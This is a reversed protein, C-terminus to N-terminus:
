TVTGDGLPGVGKLKLSLEVLGDESGAISREEVRYNGTRKENGTTDGEIYFVGEGEDGIAIGGHEADDADYFANVEATWAKRGAVSNDWGDDGMVNRDYAGVTETITFNRLEAVAGGAMTLSGEHGKIVGM